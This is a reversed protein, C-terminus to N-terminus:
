RISEQNSKQIQPIPAAEKSRLPKKFKESCSARTQVELLVWHVRKKLLQDLVLGANRCDFVPQDGCKDCDGGDGCHRSEAGAQASGEAVDRANQLFNTPRLEVAGTAGDLTAGGSLSSFLVPDQLPTVHGDASFVLQLLQDARLNRQPPM